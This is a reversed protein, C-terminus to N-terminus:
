TFFQPNVSNTVSHIAAIGKAQMLPVVNCLHIGQTKRKSLYKPLMVQEWIFGNRKGYKVLKINKFVPYEFDIDPVLIEVLNPEVMQDLEKVLELAYRQIGTIRQTLFRGNVTYKVSNDDTSKM